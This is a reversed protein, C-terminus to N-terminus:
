YKGLKFGKNKHLDSTKTGRKIESVLTDASDDRSPGFSVSAVLGALHTEIEAPIHTKGTPFIRGGPFEEPIERPSGLLRFLRVPTFEDLADIVM